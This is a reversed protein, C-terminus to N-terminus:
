SSSFHHPRDSLRAVRMMRWGPMQTCCRVTNSGSSLMISTAIAATVGTSGSFGSSPLHYLFPHQGPRRHFLHLGAKGGGATRICIVIGPLQEPKGGPPIHPQGVLRQRCTLRLRQFRQTETPFLPLRQLIQAADPAKQVKIQCYTGPHQAGPRIGLHHRFGGGAGQCPHFGGPHQVEAGAGATQPQADLPKARRRLHGTHFFARLCKDIQFLVAATGQLPLVPM